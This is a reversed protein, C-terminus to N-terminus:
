YQKDHNKSYIPHEEGRNRYEAIETQRQWNCSPCMERVIYDELYLPHPRSSIIAFTVEEDCWDCIEKDM